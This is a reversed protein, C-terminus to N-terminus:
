CAVLNPHLALRHTACLSSASIDVLHHVRPRSAASAQAHCLAFIHQHRGLSEVLGHPKSTVSAQTPWLALIRQHRGLPPPPSLITILKVTRLLCPTLSPFPTTTPPIVSCPLEGGDM